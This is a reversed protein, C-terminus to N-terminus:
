LHGNSSAISGTAAQRGSTDNTSLSYPVQRWLGAQVLRARKGYAFTDSDGYQYTTHVAIPLPPASACAVCIGGRCFACRHQVFFTHGNAVYVLPLLGITVNGGMARYMRSSLIAGGGQGSTANTTQPPLQVLNARLMDNLVAQDDLWPEPGVHAMHDAWEGLRCEQPAVSISCALAIATRACEGRADASLDLCDTSLLVDAATLRQKFAPSHPPQLFVMDSDCVWVGGTIHQLLNALFRVKM